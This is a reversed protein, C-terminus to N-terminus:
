TYIMPTASGHTLDPLWTSNASALGSGNLTATAVLARLQAGLAKSKRRQARAGNRQFGAGRRSEVARPDAVNSGAAPKRQQWDTGRIYVPKKSWYVQDFIDTYAVAKTGAAAGVPSAAREPSM